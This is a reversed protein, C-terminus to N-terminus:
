VVHPLFLLIKALMAPIDVRVRVRLETGTGSGYGHLEYGRVRVANHGIYIGDYQHFIFYRDSMKRYNQM